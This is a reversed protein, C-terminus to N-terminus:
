VCKKKQFCVPTETSINIKEVFRVPLYLKQKPSHLNFPLKFTCEILTPSLHTHTHYWMESHM